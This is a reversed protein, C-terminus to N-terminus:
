SGEQPKVEVLASLEAELEGAEPLYPALEPLDDLSNLGLRTLFYDTTRLTSAGTKEDLGDETILERALLTRVVSDVNVGRIASIRSRSVPQLYAIVALTELAPDSLRNQQGEKVWRSILEYHEPRSSFQWGGAVNRLWVGREATEYYDVLSRLAEEVLPTPAQAAEALLGVSSPETAMLLLVELAPELSSVTWDLRVDASETM